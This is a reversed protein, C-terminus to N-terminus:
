NDELKNLFEEAEEVQAKAAVYEESALVAEETQLIQDVFVRLQDVSVGLRKKSDAIMGMTESIVNEQQKWDHENKDPNSKLSALRERERVEEKIYGGVEKLARKVIGTKLKLNKIRQEESM